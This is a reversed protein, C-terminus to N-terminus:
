FYGYLAHGRTIRWRWWDSFGEQIYCDKKRLAPRKTHDTSKAHFVKHCWDSRRNVKYGGPYQKTFLTWDKLQWLQIINSIVNYEHHSRGIFAQRQQARTWTEIVHTSDTPQHLTWFSSPSVLLGTYLKFNHLHHSTTPKNITSASRGHASDLCGSINSVGHRRSGTGFHLLM